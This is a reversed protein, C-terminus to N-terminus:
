PEEDDGAGDNGRMNLDRKNVTILLKGGVVMLNGREICYGLQNLEKIKDEIQEPDTVFVKTGINCPKAKKEDHLDDQSRPTNQAFLALSGYVVLISLAAAPTWLKAQDM